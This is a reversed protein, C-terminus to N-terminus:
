RSWSSVTWRRMASRFDLSCRVLGTSCASSYLRINPSSTASSFCRRLRRSSATPPQHPQGVIARGPGRADARRPAPGRRASFPSRTSAEARAPSDQSSPVRGASSTTGGSPPALRRLPDGPLADVLGAPVGVLPDELDGLHRPRALLARDVPERHGLRSPRDPQELQTRSRTVAEITSWRRTWTTPLRPKRILARRGGVPPSIVQSTSYSPPTSGRRGRVDGGQDRGGQGVGPGFQNLARREGNSCHQRQRLSGRYSLQCLMRSNIPPNSTRTWAPSCSCLSPLRDVSRSGKERRRRETGPWRTARRSSRTLAALDEEDLDIEGAALNEELHAVSTTGPILLVNASRALLWALAIQSPTVGHKAAAAAIAPQQAM